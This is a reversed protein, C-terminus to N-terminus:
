LSSDSGHALSSGLSNVVLVCSGALNGTQGLSYVADRLQSLRIKFFHALPVNERRPATAEAVM